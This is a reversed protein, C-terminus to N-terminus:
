YHSTIGVVVHLGRLHHMGAVLLGPCRRNRRGLGAFARILDLSANIRTTGIAAIRMRAAKRSTSALERAVSALRTPSNVVTEARTEASAWSTWRSRIAAATSSASGFTAGSPKLLCVFAVSLAM